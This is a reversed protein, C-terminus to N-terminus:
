LAATATVEILVGEEITVIGLTVRSPLHEPAFFATWASNMEPKLRMDTMYVAATLVRTRDLGHETLLLDLKQLIQATQEAMGLTPDDAVIGGIHLVGAYTVAQHVPGTCGFRRIM